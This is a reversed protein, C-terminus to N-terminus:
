KKRKVGRVAEATWPDEPWHHKPYRGRIEKRVEAYGNQWFSHLDQTVQVPRYGPSLLHMLVPTRGENIRPTELLGFVEQLRVALIPASGDPRYELRIQSGTPVELALPALRALTQQQEWPLSAQLIQLLDLRKFDDRRRVGALYPALWDAATALLRETSVEPWDETPRWHRLSLVRAQWQQVEESFPLLREGEQAVAECLIRIREEEAVSALPKSEVVIDGLQLQSRAVLEGKQADWGVVEQRRALGLVDAPDLPAALFIRGEGKGADLQAIALWPEHLLPDGEPLRATRGGALRYRSGGEERRAIREPYAAAILKGVATDAVPENTVGVKFLRRWSAALREIRQLLGREAGVREGGRWRRLSEVRLSLDAGTGRQLPDREELLAAVDAALAAQGDAEGELLLHALRPHTPLRLMQRGRETIKTGELAELEGLLQRAAAV